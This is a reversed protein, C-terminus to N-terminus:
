NILINLITNYNICYYLIKYAYCVTKNYMVWFQMADSMNKWQCAGFESVWPKFFMKLKVSTIVRSQPPTWTREARLYSTASMVQVQLGLYITINLFLGCYSRMHTCGGNRNINEATEILNMIKFVNCSFVSKKAFWKKCLNFECSPHFGTQWHFFCIDM